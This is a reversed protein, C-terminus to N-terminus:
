LEDAFHPALRRFVCGGLAGLVVAWAALIALDGAAPGVGRWLLDRYLSALPALPNAGYLGWMWAPVSEWPYLIPSLYFWGPLALTVLPGLDRLFVHLSSLLLAAGGAFATQLVLVLLLWAFGGPGALPGLWPLALGMLIIELLLSTGVVHLPFLALPVRANKVLVANEALSTVARRLAEQVQLWPLVGCLVPLWLAPEGGSGSFRVRFVSGAIGASAIVTAIPLVLSWGPFISGRYRGKLDRLVLLGTLSLAQRATM